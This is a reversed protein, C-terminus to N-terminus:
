DSPAYRWFDEVTDFSNVLQLKDEWKGTQPADYRDHPFAFPFTTLSCEEGMLVLACAGYLFVAFM